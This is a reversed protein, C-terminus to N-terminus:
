VQALIVNDIELKSYIFYTINLNHHKHVVEDNEGDYYRTLRLDGPYLKSTKYGTLRITEDEVIGVLENINYNM